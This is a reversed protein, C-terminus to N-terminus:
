RLLAAGIHFVHSTYPSSGTRLQRQLARAVAGYIKRLFVDSWSRRVQCFGQLGYLEEKLAEDVLHPDLLVQELYCTIADVSLVGVARDITDLPAEPHVNVFLEFFADVAYKRNECHVPLHRWCHMVLAITTEDYM